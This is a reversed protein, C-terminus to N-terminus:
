AFLLRVKSMLPRRPLLPRHLLLLLLMLLLENPMELAKQSNKNNNKTQNPKTQQPQWFRYFLTCLLRAFCFICCICVCVCVYLQNQHLDLFDNAM